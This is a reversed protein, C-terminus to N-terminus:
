IREAHRVHSYWFWGREYMPKRQTRDSAFVCLPLCFLLLFFYVM